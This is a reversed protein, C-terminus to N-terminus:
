ITPTSVPTDVQKSIIKLEAELFDIGPQYDTKDFQNERQHERLALITKELLQETGLLGCYFSVDDDLYTARVQQTEQNGSGFTQKIVIDDEFFEFKLGSREIAGPMKPKIDILGVIRINDTTLEENMPVGNVAKLYQRVTVAM